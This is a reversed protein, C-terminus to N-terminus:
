TPANRRSTKAYLDSLTRSVPPLGSICSCIESMPPAPFSPDPLRLGQSGESIQRCGRLGGKRWMLKRFLRQLPLKALAPRDFHLGEAVTKNTPCWHVGICLAASWPASSRLVGSCSNSRFRACLELGSLGLLYITSTLKCM